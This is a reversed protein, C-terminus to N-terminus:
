PDGISSSPPVMSAMSFATSSDMYIHLVKCCLEQVLQLELLLGLSKRCQSLLVVKFLQMFDISDLETFPRTNPQFYALDLYLDDALNLTMQFNVCLLNAQLTM